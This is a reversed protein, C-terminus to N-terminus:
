APWDTLLIANMTEIDGATAMEEKLKRAHSHIKDLYDFAAFGVALAKDIDLTVDVNDAMTYNVSFPADGVKAWLAMSFVGLLKIISGMDTDVKHGLSTMAGAAQYQDRIANIQTIRKSKEVAISTPGDVLRGGKFVNEILWQLALEEPSGLGSLFFSPITIRNQDLIEVADENGLSNVTLNAMDDRIDMGGLRHVSATVGKNKIPVEKFIYSNM